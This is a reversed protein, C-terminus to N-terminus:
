PAVPGLRVWQVAWKNPWSAPWSGQNYIVAAEIPRATGALTATSKLHVWAIAWFKVVAGPNPAVTLLAGLWAPSALQAIAQAHAAQVVANGPPQLQRSLSSFPTGDTPETTV